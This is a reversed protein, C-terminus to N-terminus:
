APCANKQSGHCLGLEKFGSLSCVVYVVDLGILLLIILGIELEHVAKM